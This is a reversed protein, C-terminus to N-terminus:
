RSNQAAKKAAHLAKRILNFKYPHIEIPHGVMKEYEEQSMETMFYKTDIPSFHLNYEESM